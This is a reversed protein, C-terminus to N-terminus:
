LRPPAKSSMSKKESSYQTMITEDVFDEYVCKKRKMSDYDLSIADGYVTMPIGYYQGTTFDDVIVENGQVDVLWYRQIEYDWDTAVTIKELESDIERLQDITNLQFEQPVPDQPAAPEQKFAKLKEELADIEIDNLSFDLDDVSVGYKELMTMKEDLNEEEKQNETM